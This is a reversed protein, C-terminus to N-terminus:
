GFDGLGILASALRALGGGAVIAPSIPIAGAVPGAILAGVVASRVLISVVPLAIIAAWAPIVIGARAIIPARVVVTVSRPFVSPAMTRGIESTRGIEPALHILVLHIAGSGAGGRHAATRTSEAAKLTRVHAGAPEIAAQRRGRRWKGPAHAATHTGAWV